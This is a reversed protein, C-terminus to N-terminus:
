SVNRQPAPWRPGGDIRREGDFRFFDLRDNVDGNETHYDFIAEVSSRGADTIDQRLQGLEQSTVPRDIGSQQTPADAGRLLAISSSTLLFLITITSTHKGM